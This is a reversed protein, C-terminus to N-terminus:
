VCYTKLVHLNLRLDRHFGSHQDLTSVCITVTHSNDGGGEGDDGDDHDHARITRPTEVYLVIPIKMHQALFLRPAAYYSCETLHLVFSVIVQEHVVLPLYLKM